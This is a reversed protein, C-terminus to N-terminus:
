RSAACTMCRRAQPIARLRLDGIPAGCRECKGWTGAAIRQLAADIEALDQAEAAQLAGFVDRPELDAARDLPDSRRGQLQDEGRRLRASLAGIKEKRSILATRALRASRSELFRRM